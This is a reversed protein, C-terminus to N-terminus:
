GRSVGTKQLHWVKLCGKWTFTGSNSSPRTRRSRQSQALWSWCRSWSISTLLQSEPNSYYHNIINSIHKVTTAVHYIFLYTHIYIYIKIIIIYIYIHNIYPQDSNIVILSQYQLQHWNSIWPQYSFHIIM